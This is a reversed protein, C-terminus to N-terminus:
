EKGKTSNLKDCFTEIVPYCWGFGYYGWEGRERTIHPKKLKANCKAVITRSSVKQM